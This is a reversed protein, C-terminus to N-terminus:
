AVIPRQGGRHLIARGVGLNRGTTIDVTRIGVIRQGVTQGRAALLLATVAINTGNVALAVWKASRAFEPMPRRERLQRRVVALVVVGIPIGDLISGLARRRWSAPIYEAM